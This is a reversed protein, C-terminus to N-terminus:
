PKQPQPSCLEQVEGDSPVVVPQWQDPLLLQSMQGKLLSPTRTLVDWPYSWPKVEHRKRSSILSYVV